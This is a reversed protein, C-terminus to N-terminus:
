RRRFKKITQRRKSGKVMDCTRAKGRGKEAKCSQKKAKQEKEKEKKGEYKRDGNRSRKERRFFLLVHIDIIPSMPHKCYYIRTLVNKFQEKFINDRQSSCNGKKFIIPSGNRISFHARGGVSHFRESSSDLM